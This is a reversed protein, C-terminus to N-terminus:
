DYLNGNDGESNQPIDFLGSTYSPYDPKGWSRCGCNEEQIHKFFLDIPNNGYGSGHIKLSGSIRDFGYKNLYSIIFRENAIDTRGARQFWGLLNNVLEGEKNTKKTQHLEKKNHNKKSTTKRKYTEEIYVENNHIGGLDSNHTSTNADYHLDGQESTKEPELLVYTNRFFTHGLESARNTRKVLGIGELMRIQRRATGKARGILKGVQAYSADCEDIKNQNSAIETLALYTALTTPMQKSSVHKRILRTSHKSQWAFPTKSNGIARRTKEKM